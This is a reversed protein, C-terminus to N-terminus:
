KQNQLCIVISRVSQVSLEQVSKNITKLHITCHLWLLRSFLIRPVARTIWWGRSRIVRSSLSEEWGQHDDQQQLLGPSHGRGGHHGAPVGAPDQHLQHIFVADRLWVRQECGGSDSVDTQDLLWRSDDGRAQNFVRQLWQEQPVTRWVLVEGEFM